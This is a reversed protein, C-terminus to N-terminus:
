CIIIYQVNGFNHLSPDVIKLFFLFQRSSVFDVSAAFLEGDEGMGFPNPTKVDYINGAFMSAMSYAKGYNPDNHNVPVINFMLANDGSTTNEMCGPLVTPHIYLHMKTTNNNIIAQAEENSMENDDTQPIFM